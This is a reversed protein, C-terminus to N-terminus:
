LATINVIRSFPLIVVLCKFIHSFYAYLHYLFHSTSSFVYVASFQCIVSFASIDGSCTHWQYCDGSVCIMCTCASCCFIYLWKRFLESLVAAFVNSFMNLSLYFPITFGSETIPTRSRPTGPAIRVGPRDSLLLGSVVDPLPM